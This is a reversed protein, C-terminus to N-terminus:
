DLHMTRSGACKGSLHAAMMGATTHQTPAPPTPPTSQSPRLTAKQVFATLWALAIHTSIAMPAMCCAVQLSRLFLPHADKDPLEAFVMRDYENPRRPKHDSHLILLIHAHPLGRKQWEIVHINAVVEGFIGKKLLEDLLHQLKGVFVRTVLDLRDNAIEGPKLTNVIEEWKPNCTMTILLDPKGYQRVIAMSDQYLQAMHQHGGIFSSPLIILRGLNDINADNNAVVDPMGGYITARLPGQNNRIYFLRQSQVKNYQDVGWEQYLRKGYVFLAHSTPNRDHMHYCAWKRATIKKRQAPQTPGTDTAVHEADGEEESGDDQAPQAQEADTAVHRADGEDEGGAARRRVPAVAVHPM